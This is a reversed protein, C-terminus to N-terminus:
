KEAEGTQLQRMRQEWELVKEDAVKLEAAIRSGLGAQELYDSLRDIFSGQETDALFLSDPPSVEPHWYEYDITSVFGDSEHALRVRNPLWRNGLKSESMLRYHKLPGGGLDTYDVQRVLKKDLDVRVQISDYGINERVSQDRPCGLLVAEGPIDPALPPSLRSFSFKDTPIFGRSDEYSLTTGPVMAKQKDPELALFIDFSRLYLWMSDSRTIDRHDHMLLSTGALRGPGTFVYLLRTHAVDGNFVGWLIKRSESPLDKGYSSRSSGYETRIEMRVIHADGRFGRELEGMLVAAEASTEAPCRRQAAASALAPALVLIVIGGVLPLLRPMLWLSSLHRCAFAAAFPFPFPFPFARQGKPRSDHSM